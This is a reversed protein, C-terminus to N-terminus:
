SSRPGAASHGGHLVELLSAAIAFVVPGMVLGFVGFVPIGGLIAFFMVLEHLGVRGGVLSPRLFNDVSSVVVGGWATLVLAGTWHGTMLLFAAGPAWVAWAGIVPILGAVLTVLAWLTASPIGLLWFAVGLLVAQIAAIVLDGYISAYIVDRVRTFVRRTDAEDLPVYRPIGDLIRQGDRFLFFLTFLGFVASVIVNTVSAAIALTSGALFGALEKAYQALTATAEDASMGLASSVWLWARGLPEAVRPMSGGGLSQALALLQSVALGAMFILPILITVAVLVSTLLASLAPRGMRRVLWAYIPHFAVALISSGIIVNVFPWLIALCLYAVVALAAAFITWQVARTTKM